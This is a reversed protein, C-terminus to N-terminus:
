GLEFTTIGYINALPLDPVPGRYMRATEFVPKLNYRDCLAKAAANPEPIDLFIEGGDAMTALKRFLLDANTETDAFLPGIKHGTRCARITGYGLIEANRILVASNRAPVPRLWEKLFADRPTASFRRDYDIIAPIHVPSVEVLESSPPESCRVEGGYRINAHAYAFGSKRYNEQQAVVGDLGITRAETESLAHNWLAHGIGQGRFDPHVIYFGLFAYAPSYRVLSIAAVIGDDEEAVHFGAPDTAFFATADDLGPNWGEQAAWDLLIDLDARTANRFIPM